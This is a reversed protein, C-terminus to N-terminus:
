LSGPDQDQFQKIQWKWFEPHSPNFHQAILAAAVILSVLHIQVTHFLQVPQPVDYSVEEDFVSTRSIQILCVQFHINSDSFVCDKNRCQKHINEHTKM